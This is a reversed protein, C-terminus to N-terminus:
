NAWKLILNWLRGVHNVRTKQDNNTDVMAITDFILRSYTLWDVFMDKSEDDCKDFLVFLNCKGKTNPCKLRELSTLFTPLAYAQNKVIIAVLIGNEVTLGTHIDAKEQSIIELSGRDYYKLDKFAIRSQVTSHCISVTTLLLMLGFTRHLCSKM